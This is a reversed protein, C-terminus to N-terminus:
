GSVSEGKERMRDNFLLQGLEVNTVGEFERRQSDINMCECPVLQLVFKSGPKRRWIRRDIM